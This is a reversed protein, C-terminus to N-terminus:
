LRVGHAVPQEERDAVVRQGGARRRQGGLPLLELDDVADGIRLLQHVRQAPEVEVDDHQVVLQTADRRELERALERRPERVDADHQDGRLLRRLQQAGGHLRPDAVDHRQRQRELLELRARAGARHPRARQAVAHGPLLRGGAHEAALQDRDGAGLAAHAGGRDRHVHRERRGLARGAARDAHDVEVQLLAVEARQQVRRVPAADDVEDLDCPLERDAVELLGQVRMREADADQERRVLALARLLDIGRDGAAHQGRQLRAV